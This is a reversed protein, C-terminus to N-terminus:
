PPCPMLLAQISGAAGFDGLRHEAAPAAFHMEQVVAPPALPSTIQRWAFRKAM